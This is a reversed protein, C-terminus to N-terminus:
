SIVLPAIRSLHYREGPEMLFPVHAGMTYEKFLDVDLEVRDLGAKESWWDLCQQSSEQKRAVRRIQLRGAGTSPSQNHGNARRSPQVTRFAITGKNELVVDLFVLKKAEEWDSTQSSVDIALATQGARQTFYRYLVWGAGVLIGGATVVHNAM